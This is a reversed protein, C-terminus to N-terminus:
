VHHRFCLWSGFRRVKLGVGGSLSHGCHGYTNNLLAGEDSVSPIKTKEKDKQSLSAFIPM